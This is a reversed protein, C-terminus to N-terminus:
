IHDVKNISAHPLDLRTRHRTDGDRPYICTGGCGEIYIRNGRVLPGDQRCGAIHTTVLEVGNDYVRWSDGDLWELAAIFDAKSVGTHKHWNEFVRSQGTEVLWICTELATHRAM